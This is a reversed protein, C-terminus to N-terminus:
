KNESAKQENNKCKNMFTWQLTKIIAAKFNDDYLERKMKINADTSQKKKNM